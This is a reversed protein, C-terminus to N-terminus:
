DATARTLNGSKDYKAKLRRRATTARASKNQGGANRHQPGAKALDLIFREFRQWADPVLEIEGARPKQKRKQESM